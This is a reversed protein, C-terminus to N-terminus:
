RLDVKKQTELLLQLMEVLGTILDVLQLQLQIHPLKSTDCVTRVGSVAEAEVDPTTDSFTQTHNKLQLVGPGAVPPNKGIRGPLEVRLAGLETCANLFCPGVIFGSSKGFLYTNYSCM